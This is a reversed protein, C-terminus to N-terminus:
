DHYENWDSVKDEAEKPNLGFTDVLIEITTLYGVIGSLYDRKVAEMDDHM